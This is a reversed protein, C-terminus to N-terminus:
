HTWKGDEYLIARADSARRARRRFRCCSCGRRGKWTQAKSTEFCIIPAKSSWKVLMKRESIADEMPASENLIWGFGQTHYKRLKNTSQVM